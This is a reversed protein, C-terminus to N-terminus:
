SALLRLRVADGPRLQAARSMAEATLVGVVPYGGTLPHDALFLVPQGSPPVQIAGRVAGESPLEGGRLRALPEGALRVGVRDLESSVVWQTGDAEGVWAHRPGLTYTLEVVAPEGPEPAWDTPPIWGTTAAGIPVRAGDSLPEPGLGALTDRSRSGLVPPVAVGGRVSLYTRLGRAPEGVVLREGAALTFLTRHSVARRQGGAIVAAPAAAGTLACTLVATAEFEAGGLTIELAADDAGNGVLRAGLALADLDAAGSTGVGVAAYGPRGRDQTLVPFRAAVVILEREAAAPAPAAPAPAPGAPVEVLHEVARFHVETGPTLLAPPSATPDFLAAGTRGLLQWGGPSATPYVGSFEGALGVSGAPVRTRPTPRRPVALRRDGGVLYAFGPAFGGFAVRWPRGTHAAVVRDTSLGTLHSIEDLDGGDYVVPIEVVRTPQPLDRADVAFRALAARVADLRGPLAKILLTRAAPVVEAVGDIGGVLPLAALVAPLGDLELLVASRGYPLLRM